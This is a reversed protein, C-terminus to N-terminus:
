MSGLARVAQGAPALHCSLLDLLNQIVPTLGSARHAIGLSAVMGSGKLAIYRV